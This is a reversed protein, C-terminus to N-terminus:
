DDSTSYSARGGPSSFRVSLPSLHGAAPCSPKDGVDPAAPSRSAGPGPAFLFAQVYGRSWSHFYAGARGSRPVAACANRCPRSRSCLIVVTLWPALAQCAAQGPSPPSQPNRPTPAAASKLRTGEPIVSSSVSSSCISRAASTNVMDARGVIPLVLRRRRPGVM